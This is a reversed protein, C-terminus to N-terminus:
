YNTFYYCVATLFPSRDIFKQSYIGHAHSNTESSSPRNHIPPLRNSDLVDAAAM